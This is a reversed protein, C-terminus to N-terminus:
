DILLKSPPRTKRIPRCSSKMVRGTSFWGSAFNASLNVTAGGHLDLAAGYSVNCLPMRLRTGNDGVLGGGPAFTWPIGAGIPSSTVIACVPRNKSLDITITGIEGKELCGYPAKPLFLAKATQDSFPALIVSTLKKANQHIVATKGAFEGQEGMVKIAGGFADRDTITITWHVVKAAAANSAALADLASDLAILREDSVPASIESLEVRIQGGGRKLRLRARAGDVLVRRMAEAAAAYFHGANEFSDGLRLYAENILATATLTHDVREDRMVRAAHIRLQKYLSENLDDRRM